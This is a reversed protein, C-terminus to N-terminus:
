SPKALLLYLQLDGLLLLSLMPCKNGLEGWEERPAGPTGPLFSERRIGAMTRRGPHMERGQGCRRMPGRTVGGQVAGNPHAVWRRGPGQSMSSLFVKEPMLTVAVKELELKQGTVKSKTSKAM